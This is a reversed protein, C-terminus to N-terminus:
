QNLFNQNLSWFPPVNKMRGFSLKNLLTMDALDVWVTKILLRTLARALGKRPSASEIGLGM